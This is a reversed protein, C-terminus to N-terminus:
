LGAVHQRTTETVHSALISAGAGVSLFQPIPMGADHAQIALFLSQRMAVPAYHQLTLSTGRRLECRQALDLVFFCLATAAQTAARLDPGAGSIPGGGSTVGLCRHRAM